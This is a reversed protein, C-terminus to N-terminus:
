GPPASAPAADKEPEIHIVVDIVGPGERLLRDKIRHSLRHSDRVSMEPDVQVHLDLAIGEPGVTRTRIKHVGRVEEFSRVLTQIRSENEDTAASDLLTGLTPRVIEWAAYLILFSVLVTGVPDLFAYADGLVLCLGITIATPISSIADSRHHWANALVATSKLRTGVKATMQYLIEKLVVSLLAILFTCPNPSERVIQGLLIHRLQVVAGQMLELGVLALVIGILLTILTEIKAHGHPHKEDAPANWYRSGFIVAFDTALDSLSHIADAILVQSHGFYGGFFKLVSLALNAWLGIWTIKRVAKITEHPDM